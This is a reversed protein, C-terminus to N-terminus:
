SVDQRCNSLHPERWGPEDRDAIQLLDEIERRPFLLRGRFRIMALDGDEAARYVTSISVGFLKAVENVTYTQRTIPEKM